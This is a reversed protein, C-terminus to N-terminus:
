RGEGAGERPEHRLCTAAKKDQKHYHITNTLGALKGVSGVSEVLELGLVETVGEALSDFLLATFYLCDDGGGFGRGEGVGDEGELM